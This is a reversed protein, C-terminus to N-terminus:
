SGTIFITGEGRDEVIPSLRLGKREVREVLGSTQMRKVHYSITHRNMRLAEALHVIRVGPNKLLYDLIKTANNNPILSIPQHGRRCIHRSNSAHYTLYRGVHESKILNMKELIRLHWSGENPGVDVMRTIRRFHSFPNNVVFYYIERRKTNRLVNKRRIKEGVSGTLFYFKRFLEEVYSGVSSWWSGGASPATEASYTILLVVVSAQLAPMSVTHKAEAPRSDAYITTKQEQWQTNLARKQYLNGAKGNGRGGHDNGDGNRHSGNGSSGNGGNGNGSDPGNKSSDNGNGDDATNRNGGNRNDSNCNGNCGNCNGGGENETAYALTSVMGLCLLLILIVPLMQKLLSEDGFRNQPISILVAM